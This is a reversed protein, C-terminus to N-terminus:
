VLEKLKEMDRVVLVRGKKEIYGDKEMKLIQLTVTERTLGTMSAIIRHPVTFKIKVDRGKREGFKDAMSYILSAVKNGADGSILAQIGCVMGALESILCRMLDAHVEGNKMMYERFDKEPAMWVDMTSIAEYYFPNKKGTISGILSCYFLPKFMPVTREKGKRTVTYARAYGKKIFVVGPRKNGPEFITEGRKYKVLPYVSFFKKLKNVTKETM